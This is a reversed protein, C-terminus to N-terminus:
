IWYYNEDSVRVTEANKPTEKKSFQSIYEEKARLAYKEGWFMKVIEYGLRLKVDRTNVGGKLDFSEIEKLPVRTCGLYLPHIFSDPLAMISGFMRNNGGKQMDVFVGTGNSKSMLLVDGEILNMSVVFKEKNLYKKVMDRGILANFIQDTGCLEADVKLAVSDYGQLAPYILESAYLPKGAKMRVQFM